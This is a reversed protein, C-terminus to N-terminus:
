QAALIDDMRDAANRLATPMVHSYLNATLSIQSHGLVEMIERLSLGQALLLSACTHRLDHFRAKPLGARELIKPFRHTVSTGELPFGADTTFVLGWTNGWVMSAVREELQKMRQTKLAAVAAHPLPLVRRSKETKPEVQRYEGVTRQLAMNVRMVGADLDIDQWRLGLAEGQRLGLSVAVTYRAELRDGSVAALFQCAHEPTLPQIEHRVMRPPHILTAVNRGVMGWTMAQGLARRLIARINQQIRPSLGAARKKSLMAQVQAPTLAALKVKGLDPILHKSVYSAYSDFTSARVAPRATDELWRALFQGVTVRGDMGVPARSNPFSDAEAPSRGPGTLLDAAM